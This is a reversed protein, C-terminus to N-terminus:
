VTSVPNLATIEPISQVHLPLWSCRMICNISSQPSHNWSYVTCTPTVMFMENYLQYQISPQSKLFLSYPYGYSCRMICNISSQPSHNWSYVTCTPTVMFMKSYLQYQISPQSKLFLRVHLPLWSCRMICNISSQPSHNWSYVTCTPTVMFMENYLQYQISPQSKLFLSYPYGYSCRMICNISSQPSHNWSYVTCTPTVMFMKSYLQYQISPQSKLFLSYM